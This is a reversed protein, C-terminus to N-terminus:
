KMIVGYLEMIAKLYAKGKKGPFEVLLRRENHLLPAESIYPIKIDPICKLVKYMGEYDFDSIVASTVYVTKNQIAQLARENARHWMVCALRGGFALVVSDAKNMAWAALLNHPESPCDVIVFDFTIRAQELLSKAQENTYNDDLIDGTVPATLVFFLDDVKFVNQRISERGQLATRLSHEETIKVGLLVSLESYTKPSILCVTKDGRSIAYALNVALTTKGSQPAGWISCIGM